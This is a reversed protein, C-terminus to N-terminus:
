KRNFFLHPYLERVRRVEIWKCKNTKTVKLEEHLYKMKSSKTKRDFIPGQQLEEIHKSSFFEILSIKVNEGRDEILTSKNLKLNM